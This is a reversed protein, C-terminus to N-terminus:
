APSGGPEGAPEVVYRLKPSDREVGLATLRDWFAVADADAAVVFADIRRAGRARLLEVARRVLETGIGRHRLAPDVAIRYLSGRWGNWGAILSGIVRGEWEAVLLAPEDHQLLRTLDPESDTRTPHAGARRWLDLVAAVDGAAGARYRVAADDSPEATM